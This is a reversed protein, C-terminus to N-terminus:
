IVGVGRTSLSASPKSLSRPTLVDFCWLLLPLSLMGRGLAAGYYDSMMLQMVAIMTSAHIGISVADLSGRRDFYLQLGLITLGVLIAGGIVGAMGWDAYFTAFFAANITGGHLIGDDLYRDYMWRPTSIVQVNALAALIRNSSPGLFQHVRPFADFYQACTLSTVHTIRDWLRGGAVSLADLGRDGSLLPYILAPIFMAVAVLVSMRGLRMREPRAFYAALLAGILTTALPSKAAELVMFLCIAGLAVLWHIRGIRKSVFLATVVAGYAPLLLARSYSYVATLIPSINSQLGSIRLTMGAVASGPNAFAFFFAVNRIGIDSLYVLILAIIAMTCFPALKVVITDRQSPPEDPQLGKLPQTRHGLARMLPGSTILVLLPTLWVSVLFSDYRYEYLYIEAAQAHILLLWTAMFAWAFSLRTPPGFWLRCLALLLIPWVIYHFFRLELAGMM